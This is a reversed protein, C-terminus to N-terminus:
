GINGKSPSTSNMSPALDMSLYACWEMGSLATDQRTRFVALLLCARVRGAKNYDKRKSQQVIGGESTGTRERERGGERRGTYLFRTGVHGSQLLVEVEAVARGVGDHM